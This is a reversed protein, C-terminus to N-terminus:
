QGRYLGGLSAFEQWFNPASKAVSEAGRLTLAGECCTGAVALSMAIRHDGLSTASGGRVLGGTIHLDDGVVLAKAGISRLQEALGDLRNSEKYRLRALRSFTSSGKAFSAAVALIPILDPINEGDLDIGKLEGGKVCLVDEEWGINAGMQSLIPMIESDQAKRKSLGSLRINGGGLAGAVLFFAAHAWDGDVKITSPVYTQGGPIFLEFDSKWHALVGFKKIVDLTMAVYGKSELMSTLGITSAEPLMPLAFLLGTIFQSSIDGPLEYHTASLQGDICISDSEHSYCLKQRAFIDKYPGMPRELLRGKGRFEGKLGLASVIPIMFRLTSGSENCQIISDRGKLGGSILLKQGEWECRAIGLAETAGITALVDDNKLMPSLQSRGKALAAALIYRHALYKSPQVELHGSLKNPEIVHTKM